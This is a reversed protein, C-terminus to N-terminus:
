IPNAVHEVEKQKEDYEEKSAEAHSEMWELATEVTTQLEKRDEESLKDKLTDTCATKLNYLYGELGNRAEVRERDRKDQ